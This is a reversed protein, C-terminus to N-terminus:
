DFGSFGLQQTRPTAARPVHANGVGGADVRPAGREADQGPAAGLAQASQGGGGSVGSPLVPADGGNSDTAERAKSRGGNDEKKPRAKTKVKLKAAEKAAARAESEAQLRVAVAAEDRQALWIALTWWSGHRAYSWVREFSEIHERCRQWAGASYEGRVIDDKTAGATLLAAMDDVLRWGDDSPLTILQEDFLVRGGVPGYNIPTWPVVHKQGSDAIAAWWLGEHRARLFALIMPKEGKSANRYEVRGDVHEAYLHSYNRFNGGLKKGEAPPRGPVPAIRSHIHVCPECVWASSPAKVRSQGTYSAGTWDYRDMARLTRGACVWCVAAADLDVCDAVVPSGCVRWLM